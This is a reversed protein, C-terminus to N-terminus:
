DHCNREGQNREWISWVSIVIMSFLVSGFSLAITWGNFKRGELNGALNPIVACVLCIISRYWTTKDKWRSVKVGLFKKEQPYSPGYLIPISANLVEASHSLARGAFEEFTKEPQGMIRVVEMDDGAKFAEHAKREREGMPKYPNPLSAISAAFLYTEDRQQKMKAICKAMIGHVPCDPHEVGLCGCGLTGPGTYDTM